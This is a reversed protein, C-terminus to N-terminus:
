TLLAEFFVLSYITIDWHYVPCKGKETNIPKILFSLMHTNKFRLYKFKCFNHRCAISLIYIYAPKLLIYFTFVINLATKM